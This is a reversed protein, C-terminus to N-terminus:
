FSKGSPPPPPFSGGSGPPPPPFSGGSGPPPPPFSGNSISQSSENQSNAKPKRLKKNKSSNKKSKSGEEQMKPIISVIQNWIGPTTTVKMFREMFQNKNALNNRKYVVLNAPIATAAGLALLDKDKIELAWVADINGRIPAVAGSAFRSHTRSPAAVMTILRSGEIAQIEFWPETFVLKSVKAKLTGVSDTFSRTDKQDPIYVYDEPKPTISSGNTSQIGKLSDIVVPWSARQVNKGLAIKTTLWTMLYILVLPLLIGLLILILKFGVAFKGKITSHFEIPARLTFQKEPEQDSYYVIPAEAKVFADESVENSVAFKISGHEGQSLKLCGKEDLNTPNEWVYTDERHVVDSTIIFADSLCIKGSGSKPGTFQATGEAKGKHGDLNSLVIPSNDLSIYNSPLRVELIRAVSVPALAIGSKTVVQLTVRLEVQGQDPSATFDSLEFKNQSGLSASRAPSKEGSGLVEQVSINASSYAALDVPQGAFESVVQGSVKGPQGAILEGEDLKLDLGSFLILENSSGEKYSFSWKGYMSSDVPVTIQTAGASESVEIKGGASVSAGQPNKLQWNASTTIIRFRAIGNEILFNGPNGASIDGHTGGATYAGVKLFQFALAVPDQAILLAGSSYNAPIPNKGCAKNAPSGLNISGSGEIIPLLLAMAQEMNKRQEPTRSSLDSENKLLVGLVTVKAQRLTDAYKDCLSNFADINQPISEVSQNGPQSTTLDLGGDTLWILVQCGNSKQRQSALERSANEIGLKWDTKSGHVSEIVKQKLSNAAGEVSKSNVKTWNKWTSYKDGFFGVAYNVNLGNKLTSLQILSSKLIDARTNAKDTDKLSASEDILYFVDLNDNSNLCRTLDEFARKGQASLASASGEANAIEISPILGISLVLLLTITASGTRKILNMM